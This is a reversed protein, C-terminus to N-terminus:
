IPACQLGTDPAARSCSSGTRVVWDKRHLLRGDVTPAWPGTPCIRLVGTTPDFVHAQIHKGALAGLDVTVARHEPVYVVGRRHDASRSSAAAMAEVDSGGVVFTGAADPVLDPWGVRALLEPLHVLTHAAGSDMAVRWGPAFRWIGDHGILHGCAGSFVAQYAQRRVGNSDVGLADYAAEILIFPGTARRAPGSRQCSTTATRTSM